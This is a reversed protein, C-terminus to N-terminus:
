QRCLSPIRLQYIENNIYFILYLSSNYVIASYNTSYEYSDNDLYISSRNSNKIIHKSIEQKELLITFDFHIKSIQHLLVDLSFYYFYDSNDQSIDVVIFHKRNISSIVIITNDIYITNTM